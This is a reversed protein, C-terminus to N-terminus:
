SQNYGDNGGPAVTTLSADTNTAGARGPKPNLVEDPKEAAQREAGRKKLQDQQRGQDQAAICSGTRYRIRDV